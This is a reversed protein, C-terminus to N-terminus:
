NRKNKQEIQFKFEKHKKQLSEMKQEVESKNFSYFVEVREGIENIQVLAFLPYLKTKNEREALTEIEKKLHNPAKNIKTM